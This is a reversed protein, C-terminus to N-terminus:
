PSMNQSSCGLLDLILPGSSFLVDSCSLIRVFRELVWVVLLEWVIPLYFRSLLIACQAVLSVM